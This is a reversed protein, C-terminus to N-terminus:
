KINNLDPNNLIKELCVIADNDKIDDVLDVVHLEKIGCVIKIDVLSSDFAWVPNKSILSFKYRKIIDLANRVKLMEANNLSINRIEKNKIEKCTFIASGYADVGDILEFEVDHENLKLIIGSAIKKNMAQGQLMSCAFCLSLGIAMIHNM